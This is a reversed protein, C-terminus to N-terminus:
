ARRTSGRAALARREVSDVLRIRVKGDRALMAAEEPALAPARPTGRGLAIVPVFASRATTCETSPAFM